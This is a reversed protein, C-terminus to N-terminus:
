IELSLFTYLGAVYTIRFKGRLFVATDKAYPIQQEENKKQICSLINLFVNFIFNKTHGM